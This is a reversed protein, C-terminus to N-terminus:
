YSDATIVAVNGAGPLVTLFAATPESKSLAVAMTGVKSGKPHGDCHQLAIAHDNAEIVVSVGSISEITGDEKVVHFTSTTGRNGMKVANAFWLKDDM